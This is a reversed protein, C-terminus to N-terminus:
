PPFNHYDWLQTDKTANRHLALYPAHAVSARYLECSLHYTHMINLIISSTFPMHLHVMRILIKAHMHGKVPNALQLATAAATQGKVPNALQLATAAAM